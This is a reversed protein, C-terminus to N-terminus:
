LDPPQDIVRFPSPELKWVEKALSERLMEAGLTGKLFDFSRNRVKENLFAAMRYLDHYEERSIGNLESFPFLHPSWHQLPVDALYAAHEMQEPSGPTPTFPKLILSGLTEVVQFCRLILQELQEKPRGIWVFGSLREDAEKLGAQRLYGVAERYAHVDIADGADAEEFHIEAFQKSALVRAVEPTVRRPHLGCIAHFRLHRHMGDTGKVIEILSRGDDRCIDDDFFAVRYVEHDVARRIEEIAVKPDLGVAVFPPPEDGYLEFAGVHQELEFTKTVVYDAACAKAAHDPTLRAYQGILVIQVDELTQRVVRCMEAISEFWYSCLSTIWVQTPEKRRGESRKQDLWDMFVTHPKGFQRMPYRVGEVTRYRRDRPLWAEAVFGEKDPRMCDLLHVECGVRSRLYSALKLLDQPQNWRLWSYRTEWVPPNILLVRDKKRVHRDLLVKATIPKGM